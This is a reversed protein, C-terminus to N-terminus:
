CLAYNEVITTAKTVKYDTFIFIKGNFSTIRVLFVDVNNKVHVNFKIKQQAM